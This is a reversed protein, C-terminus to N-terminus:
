HIHKRLGSLIKSDIDVPDLKRSQSKRPITLQEAPDNTDLNAEKERKRANNELEAVRRVGAEKTAAKMAKAKAKEAKEAQVM